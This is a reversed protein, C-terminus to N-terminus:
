WCIGAKLPICGREQFHSMIWRQQKHQDVLQFHGSSKNQINFSDCPDNEVSSSGYRTKKSTKEAIHGGQM